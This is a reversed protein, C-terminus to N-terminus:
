WGYKAATDGKSKKSGSSRAALEAANLQANFALSNIQHKRKQLTSPKHTSEAVGSSRNYFKASIAVEEKPAQPVYTSVPVMRKLADQSISLVRSEDVDVLPDDGGFDPPPAAPGAPADYSMSPRTVNGCSAAPGSGGPETDMVYMSTNLRPRLSSTAAATPPANGFADAAGLIGAGSAAAGLFGDDAGTVDEEELAAVPAAPPAASSSAAKSVSSLPAGLPAAAKPASARPALAAKSALGRAAPNKPPPLMSSLAAWGKSGTSELRAAEEGM